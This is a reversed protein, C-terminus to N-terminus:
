QKHYQLSASKALPPDPGRFEELEPPVANAKDRVSLLRVETQDSDMVPGPQELYCKATQFGITLCNM